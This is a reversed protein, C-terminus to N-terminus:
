LLINKPVIYISAERLHQYFIDMDAAVNLQWPRPRPQLLWAQCEDEDDEDLWSDCSHPSEEDEDSEEDSNEYFKSAKSSILEDNKFYFLEQKSPDLVRKSAALKMVKDFKCAIQYPVTDMGHSDDCGYTIWNNTPLVDIFICIKWYIQGKSVLFHFKSPIQLFLFFSFSFVLVKCM